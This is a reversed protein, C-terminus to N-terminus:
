VVTKLEVALRELQSRTGAERWEPRDQGDLYAGQDTVTLRTGAGEPDFQVHVLNVALRTEDRHMHNTLVIREDPVIDRFCGEYSFVPGGKGDQFTNRETGGVRFDLELTAADPDPSDVGAFWRNKATQDAWAAFVRAPPADYVHVIVFTAHTVSRDSM